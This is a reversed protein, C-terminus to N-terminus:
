GLVKQVVPHEVQLTGFAWILRSMDVSDWRTCVYCFVFVRPMLLFEQFHRKPQKHHEVMNMKIVVRRHLHFTLGRLEPQINIYRGLDPM